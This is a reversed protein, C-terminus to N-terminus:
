KPSITLASDPSRSPCRPRAFVMFWAMGIAKKRINVTFFLIRLGTAAIGRAINMVARIMPFALIPATPNIKKM